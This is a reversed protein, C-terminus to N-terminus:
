RRSRRVSSRRSRSASRGPGCPTSASWRMALSRAFADSVGAVHVVLRDLTVRYTLDVMSEPVLGDESAPVSLGFRLYGSPWPRHARAPVPLRRLGFPPPRPLPIPATEDGSDGQLLDARGTCCHGVLEPANVRRWRGEAAPSVV